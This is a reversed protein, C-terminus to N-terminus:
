TEEKDKNNFHKLFYDYKDAITTAMLATMDQGVYIKTLELALYENKTLLTTPSKPQSNKHVTTEALIAEIRDLDSLPEFNREGDCGYCPEQGPLVNVHKCKACNSYNSM